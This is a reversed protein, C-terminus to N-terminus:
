DRKHVEHDKYTEIMIVKANHKVIPIQLIKQTNPPCYIDTFIQRIDQFSPNPLAGVFDEVFQDKKEKKKPPSIKGFLSIFYQFYLFSTFKNQLKKLRWFNAFQM